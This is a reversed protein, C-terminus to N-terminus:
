FARRQGCVRCVSVCASVRRRSCLRLRPLAVSRRDDSGRELAAHTRALEVRHPGLHTRTRREERTRARKRAHVGLATRPRGQAAPGPRAKSDALLLGRILVLLWRRRRANPNPACHFVANEFKRMQRSLNTASLSCLMLMTRRLTDRRTATRQAAASTQHPLLARESSPTCLVRWGAATVAWGRSDANTRQAIPRDTAISGTTESQAARLRGRACASRQAPQTTQRASHPRENGTAERCTAHDMRADCRQM